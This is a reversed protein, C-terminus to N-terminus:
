VISILGNRTLDDILETVDAQAQELTIHCATSADQALEAVTRTGDCWSWILRGTQNLVFSHGTKVQYIVLDDDLPFVTVDPHPLPRGRQERHVDETM